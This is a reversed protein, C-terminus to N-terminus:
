ECVCSSWDDNVIRDGAAIVPRTVDLLRFAVNTQTVEQNAKVWTM